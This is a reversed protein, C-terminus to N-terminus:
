DELEHEEWGVDIDSDEGERELVKDHLKVAGELTRRVGEVTYESSNDHTSIVVYVKM